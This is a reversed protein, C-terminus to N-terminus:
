RKTKEISGDPRLIRGGPLPAGDSVSPKGLGWKFKIIAILKKRIPKHKNM